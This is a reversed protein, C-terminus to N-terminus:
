WWGGYLARGLHMLACAVAGAAVDDLVVGLAGGVGRDIARIPPPKTMDLVRFLVFAALIEPWRFPVGIAAVLLGAVEDIVIRQVDHEGYIGEALHAVGIAAGTFIAAVAAFPLWALSSLAWWLPIAALTGWTGPALPLYGLGFASSLSLVLLRRPRM